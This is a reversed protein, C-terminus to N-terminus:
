PIALPMQDCAVDNFLPAVVAQCYSKYDMEGVTASPVVGDVIAPAGLFMFEPSNLWVGCARRLGNEEAAADLPGVLDELLGRETSDDLRPDALLRDKM